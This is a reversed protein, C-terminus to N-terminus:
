CIISIQIRKISKKKLKQNIKKIIQDSQYQLEQAVISNKVGIKLTKNKFFLPQGVGVERKWIQFIKERELQPSFRKKPKSLLDKLPLWM